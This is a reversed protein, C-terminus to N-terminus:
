DKNVYSIVIHIKDNHCSDFIEWVSAIQKDTKQTYISKEWLNQVIKFLKSTLIM